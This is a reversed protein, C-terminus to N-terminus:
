HYKFIFKGNGILLSPVADKKLMKPTTNMVSAKISDEFDDLKFHIGCVVAYKISFHIKNILKKFTTIITFLIICSM